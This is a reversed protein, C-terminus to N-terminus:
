DVEVAVLEPVDPEVAVPAQRAREFEALGEDSPVPPAPHAALALTQAWYQGHEGVTTIQALQWARDRSKRYREQVPEIKQLAKVLEASAAEAEPRIEANLLEIVHDWLYILYARVSARQTSVAVRYRLAHTESDALREAASLELSLAHEREQDIGEQAGRVIEAQLAGRAASLKAAAANTADRVERLRETAGRPSGPLPLSGALRGRIDAERLAARPPEAPTERVHSLGSEQRHPNQIPM